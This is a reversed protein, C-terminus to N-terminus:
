YKVDYIRKKVVVSVFQNLESTSGHFDAMMSAWIESKQHIM